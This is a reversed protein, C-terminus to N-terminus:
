KRYLERFEIPIDLPTEPVKDIYQYEGVDKGTSQLKNANPGIANARVKKRIVVCFSPDDLHPVHDSKATAVSFQINANYEAM